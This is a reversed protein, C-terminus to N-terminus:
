DHRAESLGNILIGVGYCVAGIWPLARLASIIDELNSISMNGGLISAAANIAMNAANAYIYSLIIGFALLMIAGIVKMATGSSTRKFGNVIGGILMAGGLIPLSIGWIEGYADSSLSHNTILSSLQNSASLTQGAFTFHLFLGVILFIIGLILESGLKFAPNSRVVQTATNQHDSSSTASEHAPSAARSEDTSTKPARAAATLHHLQEKLHPISQDDALWRNFSAEWPYSDENSLLPYFYTLLLFIVLIIYRYAPLLAALVFCVLMTEANNNMFRFVQRWHRRSFALRAFVNVKNNQRQDRLQRKLQNVQHQLRAQEAQDASNKQRTTASSTQNNKASASQRQTQQHSLPFSEKKDSDEQSIARRGCQDCFVQGPKLPAGCYKCYHM